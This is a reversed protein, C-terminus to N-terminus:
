RHARVPAAIEHEDVANVGDGFRQLGPAHDRHTRAAACITPQLLQEHQGLLRAHRNAAHGIVLEIAFRSPRRMLTHDRLDACAVGGASITTRSPM